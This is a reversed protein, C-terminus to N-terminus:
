AIGALHAAVQDAIVASDEDAGLIIGSKRRRLWPLGLFWLGPVEARGGDHVLAGSADAIPLKVWSMDAGFGTAWIVATIGEAEVDLESPPTLAEPDAMPEDAPDPTMPHAVLGQERILREFQERFEASSRDGAAISTALDREFHLRGDRIERLHGVLTAGRAALFQLSLTHGHRGVGSILPLAAFRSRPDALQDVTQDFFGLPQLWEFVDRERHRRPFRGVTSASVFVRRGGDLLDEAVQGGSQASGVVLVAGPPLQDPCRYDATHLFTVTPPLNAAIAPVKPIRQFGAAVVVVTAPIEEGAETQLRFDAGAPGPELSTIRTRERIPLREAAAYEDLRAVWADRALFADRPEAPEAQGPLVSAWSPSNLQFSDWRQTRWTEGVRGQEFVAHEVGRRALHWSLALGAHGAGIVACDLTM